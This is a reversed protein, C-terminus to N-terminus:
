SVLAAKLEDVSFYDTGFIVWILLENLEEIEKQSLTESLTNIVNRAIAERDQGAEDLIKELRHLPLHKALRLPLFFISLPHLV